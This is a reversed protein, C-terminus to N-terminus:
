VLRHLLSYGVPIDSVEEPLEQTGPDQFVPLVFVGQGSCRWPADHAREQGVYVEVFQVPRHLGGGQVESGILALPLSGLAVPVEEVYPICVVKHHQTIAGFGLRAGHLLCSATDEVM